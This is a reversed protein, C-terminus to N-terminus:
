EDLIAQLRDTARIYKWVGNMLVGTVVGTPISLLLMVPLYLFIGSFQLIIAAMIIQGLSHAVAGLVSVAIMDTKTWCRLVLAMLLTAFVAGTISMLFGVGFLTGNLFSGLVCRLVSIQTATKLDFVILALLSVINALGLKVGPIPLPSPFMSELFHLVTAQAVLVAIVALIKTPRVAVAARNPRIAGPTASVRPVRPM